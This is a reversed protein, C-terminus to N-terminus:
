AGCEQYKEYVDQYAPKLSKKFVKVVYMAGPRGGLRSNRIQVLDGPKVSPALAQEIGSQKYIAQQAESLATRKSDTVPLYELVLHAARSLELAQERTLNFQM